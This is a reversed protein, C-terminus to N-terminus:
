ESGTIRESKAATFKDELAPIQEWKREVLAFVEALSYGAEKATQILLEANGEAAASFNFPTAPDWDVTIHIKTSM